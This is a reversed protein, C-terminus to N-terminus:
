NGTDREFAFEPTHVGVIVLGQDRYREHWQRLHPLTNLCNSCAFTWFDVLVVQGRLQAMTLPPSNLWHTIGTFEPAPEAAQATPTVAEVLRTSAAAVTRSLWAAAQADVQWHMALATAV